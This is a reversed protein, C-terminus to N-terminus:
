RLPTCATFVVMGRSEAAAAFSGEGSAEDIVLSFARGQEYGQLVIQGNERQATQITTKRSEGSARTTSLERGKVDVQVFQPINLATPPLTECEGAAACATARLTSCLLRDAGTLDDALAPGAIGAAILLPILRM